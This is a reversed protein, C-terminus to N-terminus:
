SKIVILKQSCYRKIFVKSKKVIINSNILDVHANKYELIFIEKLNPYHVLNSPYSKKKVTM